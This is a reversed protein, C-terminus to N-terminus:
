SVEIALKIENFMKEIKEMEKSNKTIELFTTELFDEKVCKEIARWLIDDVLYITTKKGLLYKGEKLIEAIGPNFANIIFSIKKDEFLEERLKCNNSELDSNKIESKLYACVSDTTINHEEESNLRKEKIQLFRVEQGM